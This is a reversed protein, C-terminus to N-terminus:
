IDRFKVVVCSEDYFKQIFNDILKSEGGYKKYYIRIYGYILNWLTLDNQGLPNKIDFGIILETITQIYKELSNGYQSLADLYEYMNYLTTTYINNPECIEMDMLGYSHKICNYRFLVYKHFWLFFYSFGLVKYPHKLKSINMLYLLNNNTPYWKDYFGPDDILEYFRQNVSRISILDYIDLSNLINIQIEAAINSFLDLNTTNQMYIKIFNFFICYM